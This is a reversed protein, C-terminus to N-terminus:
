EEGFLINFNDLNLTRLLEVTSDKLFLFRTEDNFFQFVGIYQEPLDPKYDTIFHVIFFGSPHAFVKLIKDDNDFFESTTNTKLFNQIRKITKNKERKNKVEKYKTKM